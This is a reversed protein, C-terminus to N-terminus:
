KKDGNPRHEDEHELFRIPEPDDDKKGIGFNELFKEMEAQKEEMSVQVVAGELALAAKSSYEEPAKRELYWKTTSISGERISKAVNLKAQSTLDSRLFDRLDEIRHDSKVMEKIEKETIYYGDDRSARFSAERDSLGNEWADIIIGWAKEPMNKPKYALYRVEQKKAMSKRCFFM